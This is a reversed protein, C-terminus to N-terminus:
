LPLGKVGEKLLQTRKGNKNFKHTYLGGLAGSSLMFAGFVIYTLPGGLLPILQLIGVVAVVVVTALIATIWPAAYFLGAGPLFFGLGVGWLLSKKQAEALQEKPGRDVVADLALDALAARGRRVLAQGTGEGEGEAEAAVKAAKAKPEPKARPEAQATAEPKPRPAPEPRPSPARPPPRRPAPPGRARGRLRYVFDEGELDLELERREHLLALVRRAEAVDVEHVTVLEAATVQGREQAMALAAREIKPNGAM